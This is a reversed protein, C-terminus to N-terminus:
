HGKPDIAHLIQHWWQAEASTDKLLWVLRSFTWSASLFRWDQHWPAMGFRIWGYVCRMIFIDFLYAFIFPGILPIVLMIKQSMRLTAFTGDDWMRRLTGYAIFTLCFLSFWVPGALLPHSMTFTWAGKTLAIAGSLLFQMAVNTLINEM